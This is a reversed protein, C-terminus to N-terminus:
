QDNERKSWLLYDLKKVDTLAHKYAPLLADFLAICARGRDSGLFQAYEDQLRKYIEGACQIREAESRGNQRDWLENQKTNKLVYQDWIPLEPQVAAMLKSVFSVEVRRRGDAEAMLRLLETFPLADRKQAIM